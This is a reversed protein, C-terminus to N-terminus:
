MQNFFGKLDSWITSVGGSHVFLQHVITLVPLMTEGDQYHHWHYPGQWRGNVKLIVPNGIPHLIKINSKGFRKILETNAFQFDPHQGNGMTPNTNNFLGVFDDSKVFYERGPTYSSFDPFGAADYYVSVQSMQKNKFGIKNDGTKIFIYCRIM